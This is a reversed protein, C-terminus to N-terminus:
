EYPAATLYTLHFARDAPVGAATFCSVYVTTLALPDEACGQIRVADAMEAAADFSRGWAMASASYQM